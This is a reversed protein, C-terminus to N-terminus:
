EVQCCSSPKKHRLPDRADLDHLNDLTPMKPLVPTTMPDGPRPSSAPVQRVCDPSILHLPDRPSLGPPQPLGSERM